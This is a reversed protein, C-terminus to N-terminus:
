PRQVRDSLYYRAPRTLMGPQCFRCGRTCGRRIEVVMRDHVTGVLPVIGIQQYPDPQAVRRKIREPLGEHIPYVAGGFRFIFCMYPSYIENVTNIEASAWLAESM